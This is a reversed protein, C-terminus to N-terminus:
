LISGDPALAARLEGIALDLAMECGGEGGSRQLADTADLVAQAVRRLRTVAASERHGLKVLLARQITEAFLNRDELAREYQGRTQQIIERSQDLDRELVRRDVLPKRKKTKKKKTVV